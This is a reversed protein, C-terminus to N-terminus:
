SVLWDIEGVDFAQEVGAEIILQGGANVGKVVGEFHINEKKFKVLEGRKYLLSNYEKLQDAAGEHLLQRYRRDLLICLEKALQVPDYV